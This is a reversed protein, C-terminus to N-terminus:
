PVAWGNGLFVTRGQKPQNPHNNFCNASPELETICFSLIFNQATKVTKLSSLFIVFPAGHWRPTLPLLAWVPM